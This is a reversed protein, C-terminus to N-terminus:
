EPIVAEVDYAGTDTLEDPGATSEESVMDTATVESVAAEAATGAGEGALAISEEQTTEDAPVANGAFGGAEAGFATVLSQSSNSIIMSAALVAALIRRRKM